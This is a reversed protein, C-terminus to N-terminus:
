SDFLHIIIFMEAEYMYRLRCRATIFTCEVTSLSPADTTQSVNGSKM